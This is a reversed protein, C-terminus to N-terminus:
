AESDELKEKLKRLLWPGDLDTFLDFRESLFFEEIRRCEDAASRDKPFRRLRKWAARYDQVAQKVVAAGLAKYNETLDM